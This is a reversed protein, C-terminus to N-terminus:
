LFLIWTIPSKNKSQVSEAYSLAIVPLATAVTAKQSIDSKLLNCNKKSHTAYILLAICMIEKLINLIAAKLYKTLIKKLQVFCIGYTKM